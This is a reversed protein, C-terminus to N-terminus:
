KIEWVFTVSDSSEIDEPVFSLSKCERVSNMSDEAIGYTTPSYVNIEGWSYNVSVLEGLSVDSSKCLVEAKRRANETASCLMEDKVSEADKVTFSVSLHPDAASKSVATIVKSLYLSDFDFSIKLGHNVLYGSFVSKYEGDESRVHDYKTRVDFNVTKIDNKDFGIKKLNKTLGDIKKSAASMAKEYSLDVSELGLSIEVTDPKSFVKGIGKVTITKM